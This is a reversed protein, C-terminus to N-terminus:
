GAWGRSPRRGRAGRCPAAARAARARRRARPRLTPGSRPNAAVQADFWALYKLDEQYQAAWKSGKASELKRSLAALAAEQEKRV